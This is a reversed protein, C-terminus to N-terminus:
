KHILFSDYIDSGPPLGDCALKIKKWIKKQPKWRPDTKGIQINEMDPCVRITKGRIHKGSIDLFIYHNMIARVALADFVEKPAVRKTKGHMDAFPKFTAGGGGSVIHIVGEGRHYEAVDSKVISLTGDM